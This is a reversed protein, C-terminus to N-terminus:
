AEEEIEQIMRELDCSCTFIDPRKARLIEAAVSADGYTEFVGLLVYDCCGGNIFSGINGRIAEIVPEVHFCKQSFSWELSIDTEKIAMKM